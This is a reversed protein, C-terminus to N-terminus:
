PTEHPVNGEAQDLFQDFLENLPRSALKLTADEALQRVEKRAQHLIKEREQEAEKQAKAIVEGAEKKALSLEAEREEQIEEEAKRKMEAIDKDAQELKELYEEKLKEADSLTKKAEGHMDAYAQDRKEMFARIPKYLLFYLGGFLVVFNFLHLLVQQFDINLPM